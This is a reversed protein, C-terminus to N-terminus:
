DMLDKDVYIANPYYWALLRSDAICALIDSKDNWLFSDTMAALKTVDRKHVPSLYLDRNVDM